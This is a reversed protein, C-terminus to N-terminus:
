NIGDSSTIFSRLEKSLKNLSPQSIYMMHGSHFYSITINDKLEGELGLHNVTYETALYPTALDFYGSAIYVRLHPNKTMASRLNTAVNVFRNRYKGYSWPHVRDTLIEYPLDCEFELETRVYDKFTASFPGYINSYSPDYEPRAGAADSDRGTFRSDLRGTTLRRDRMLEKTFCRINIRLNTQKIYEDSLGTLESLRKSVRDYGEESIEDGLMLAQNYEGLAFQEAEQLAKPLNDSYSQGLKGHYWATATYSPLFLVFPLDNGPTFNATQFNLISSVLIIGNLFIGHRDQIYGSLGAARTTGYSEGILFKPSSWRHARSLFLRIFEGVWKIDKEVGHFQEPKEGPAPRSFGTTVPDIFIIDTVDLLSYQNESLTYPPPYATGDSQFNVRRPGLLGMHLWVSSSGPGGNFSFTVPRNGPDDVDRKKYYIYFISAKQDGKEDKLVITAATAQYKLSKGNIDVQHETRSVREEIRPHGKKNSDKNNEGPNQAPCNQSWLSLMIVTITMTIKSHTIVKSFMSDEM